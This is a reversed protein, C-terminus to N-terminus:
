SAPPWTLRRVPRGSPPRCPLLGARRVRSAGRCTASKLLRQLFDSCPWAGAVVSSRSADRQFQAVQLAAADRRRLSAPAGPPFFCSASPISLDARVNTLPSRRLAYEPAALPRPASRTATPLNFPNLLWGATISSAEAPSGLRRRGCPMRRSSTLHPNNHAYFHELGSRSAFGGSRTWPREALIVPDPGRLTNPTSIPGM